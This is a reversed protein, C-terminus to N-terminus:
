GETGLRAGSGIDGRPTSVSWGRFFSIRPVDATIRQKRLKIGRLGGKLENRIVMLVYDKIKKLLMGEERERRTDRSGSLPFVNM